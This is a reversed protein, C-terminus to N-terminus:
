AVRGQLLLQGDINRQRELEWSGMRVAGAADALGDRYPVAELLLAIRCHGGGCDRGRQQVRSFIAFFRGSLIVGPSRADTRRSGTSVWADGTSIGAAARGKGSPGRLVFLRKRRSVAKRPSVVGCHGEAGARGCQRLHMGRLPLKQELKDSPVACGHLSGPM